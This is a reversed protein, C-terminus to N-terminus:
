AAKFPYGGTLLRDLEFGAEQAEIWAATIHEQSGKKKPVPRVTYKPIGNAQIDKSIILDISTLDKDYDEMQSIDDLEKMITKQTIPWVQVNGTEYNFVPASIAFKIDTTGPGGRGERAEFDGMEATVDEPTPQYDFRFPKSQTGSTGWVEYYELPQDSLITVRVSGKDPLKSLNLYGGGSSSTTIAATATKSLFAMILHQPQELLNQGAPQTV